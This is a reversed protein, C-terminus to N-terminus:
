EAGLRDGAHAACEAPVIKSHVRGSSPDGTVRWCLNGIRKEYEAVSHDLKRIPRSIRLAVVRNVIVLMMIMLLILVISFQRMDIMKHTFISYPVVGVLKWGTYGITNVIVKRHKGEFYEEYVGDKEKAVALNNEGAIGKSIQIQQPHYIIEGNSDCLYFYQESGLTNIQKIM